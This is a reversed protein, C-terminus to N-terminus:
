STEVTWPGPSMLSNSQRTETKNGDLVFDPDMLFNSIGEM